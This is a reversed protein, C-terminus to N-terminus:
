RMVPSSSSRRKSRRAVTRDGPAPAPRRRASRGRRGSASDDRSWPGCGRYRVLGDPDIRGCWLTIFCAEPITRVAWADLREVIEAPALGSEALTDACAQTGAMVMGARAGKGSVDGLVVHLGDGNRECMSWTVRSRHPGPDRRGAWSLDGLRGSESPLLVEQVARAANMEALWRRGSPDGRRRGQQM